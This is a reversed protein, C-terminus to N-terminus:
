IWTTKLLAKIRRVRKHVEDMVDAALPLSGQPLPIVIPPSHGTIETPTYHDNTAVLTSVCTEKTRHDLFKKETAPLDGSLILLGARTIM